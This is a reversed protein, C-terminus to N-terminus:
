GHSSGSKGKEISLAIACHVGDPEFDLRTEAGLQYRLAREILLSGYGRRKPRGNEPMIVGSEKWDLLLLSGSGKPALRWTLSVKGAPQALAGYKVANTALEHL